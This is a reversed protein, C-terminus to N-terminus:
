LPATARWIAPKVVTSVSAQRAYNPASKKRYSTLQEGLLTIRTGRSRPLSLGAQPRSTGEGEMVLQVWGELRTHRALKVERCELGTLDDPQVLDGEMVELGPAERGPAETGLATDM